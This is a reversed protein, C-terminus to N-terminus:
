ADTDHGGLPSPLPLPGGVKKKGRRRSPPLLSHSSLRITPPIRLIKKSLPLPVNWFIFYLGVLMTEADDPAAPQSVHAREAPPSQNASDIVAALLLLSRLDDDARETQNPLM